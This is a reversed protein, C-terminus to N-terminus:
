EGRFLTLKNYWMRLSPNDNHSKLNYNVKLKIYTSSISKILLTVHDTLPSNSELSHSELSSFINSNYFHYLVKSQIFLTNIQRNEYNFSKLIKETQLCIIIVDDSPYNLGGKDGEKNKLTILSNFFSEKDNSCLAKLCKDCKITSSLKHVVFGAIYIIIEKSFNSFNYINIYINQTYIYDHDNIYSDVEQVNEESLISDTDHSNTSNNITKIPDSSSYHLIDINELPICNGTNLNEINNSHIVLKKYASQFQRSTPNNNFGGLSRITGFFLELHDQSTKYMKIHDLKGSKVLSKYLSLTSNLCVIFGLFGTKRNSELVPIFNDKEKVKLGIIYTTMLNTFEIIEKINENCIAKKKGFCRVSRSNLIDFGDNFMEIFKVTGDVESFEKLGLNYKCFKLADAVSQSLLQSALKVKMKQKFFFIHNKRLKNALHCGEKEQLIFLRKVLNFHILNNDSDLFTDKDGFANRVLKVMHAPDLFVVIDDFKTSLTNINFDCGLLRAMTLNSSCGDFTLSVVCVGTDNLLNLAHKTLEAKQSGNLSTILFYGIPIKWNENISVLMFVLCEKAKELNDNDIGTGLDVGGYYNKGDFEIHQRIAMEDLMLSCVVPTESFKVKLALTKIAESTFGPKADVHSYWKSLTRAHPLITNFQKRVYNYAKASFLHLSLAFQRVAPSYKKPIKHNTNKKYWNTILNKHKGFSELLMDSADDNILNEKRLQSIITKLSAIKKNARRLSQQLVKM